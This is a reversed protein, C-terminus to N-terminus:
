SRSRFKSKMNSKKRVVIRVTIVVFFLASIIVLSEKDYRYIQEIQDGFLYGLTFFISIFLFVASYSYLVLNRFPLKSFGFLFPMVNRVGPIFYSIFLSFSHYKEILSLAKEIHRNARKRRQLRSVLPKGLFRGVSYSTTVSAIIGMYTIIFTQIPLLIGRATSFGVTMVIVENPVPMGLGGLWLWFFLGVYGYEKILVIISDIDM